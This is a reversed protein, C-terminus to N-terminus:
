GPGTPLPQQNVASDGAFGRVELDLAVPGVRDPTYTLPTRAPNRYARPVAEAHDAVTIRFERVPMDNLKYRGAADTEVVAYAPFERGTAVHFAVLARPLPRGDLRVVGTLQVARRPDRGLNFHLCWVVVPMGSFMLIVVTGASQAAQWFAPLYGGDSLLGHKNVVRLGSDYADWGFSAIVALDSTTKGAVLLAAFAFAVTATTGVWFTIRSRRRPLFRYSNLGLVVTAVVASVGGVAAMALSLVGIAYQDPHTMAMAWARNGAGVSLSGRGAM